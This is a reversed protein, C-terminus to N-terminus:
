FVYLSEFLPLKRPVESWGQVQILPSFEYQRSEVQHEQIRQLWDTLLEGGSVRVRVPLTNIFLGIMNEIGALEAPRGSVTAGYVVDREGSYRSLLLAWGGQVLTNVTLQQQAALSNLAATLEPSLEVQTEGYDNGDGNSNSQVRGLGLPTPVTFGCLANRWFSEAQALNQRKLWAIYDQFPRPRSLELLERKLFAAYHAFVEKLLLAISWGDLLIHHYTWIFEYVDDGTRLLACRMLPAQSLIFGAERDRELYAELRERQASPSMGRWDEEWWPLIVQPHVIQLPQKRHEWVFATRLIAHRDLVRQWANRLALTDLEGELVCQVQHFYVGSKPAYITHFLMGQQMPSLPYIAEIQRGKQM